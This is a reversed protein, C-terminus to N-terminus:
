ASSPMRSTSLDRPSPSTYLLCNMVRLGTVELTWPPPAAPVGNGGAAEANSDPKAHPFPQQSGVTAAIDFGDRARDLPQARLALASGGDEFSSQFVQVGRWAAPHNVEIREARQEGTARDHFVVESAFLKPMGTPYYDVIFRRLEIAFPLPQLVVGDPRNLLATSSQTGEAVAITGRFSPTSESLRHTAPVEAVLGGGGYASVGKFAMAARVALDGDFLGGVCILVIAGHTAVYGLKRAGGKQAAVLWGSGSGASVPAGTQVSPLDRERTRVRWGRASLAQALAQAQAGAHQGSEATAQQGFSRLSQIRIDHKFSRWDALLRPATRYICLSTSAVLLALVALFWWASYVAYLGAADFLPAWFPGFRDIYSVPSQGQPLVTGIVAAICILTLLAIAFRMSSCLEVAVRWAPPGRRPQLGQSLVSM